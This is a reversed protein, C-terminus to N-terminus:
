IHSYFTIKIKKSGLVKGIQLISFQKTKNTFKYAANKFIYKEGNHKKWWDQTLHQGKKSKLQVRLERHTIIDLAM